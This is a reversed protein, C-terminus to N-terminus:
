ISFLNKWSSHTPPPLGISYHLFAYPTGCMGHYPILLQEQSGAAELVAAGSYGGPGVCHMAEEKVDQSLIDAAQLSGPDQLQREM